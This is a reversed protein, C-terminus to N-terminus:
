RGKSTFAQVNTQNAIFNRVHQSYDTGREAYNRYWDFSTCGPSLLVVDGSVALSAAHAVAVQMSEARRVPCVDKFAAEVEPASEGTAVVARMRAPESAMEALDLGKNRGGAILVVSDFARIAVLAAHPSTAKSDDFWRVGDREGVFEIRHHAHEFHRMAEAVDATSVLGSEMCVAAAALANTVDHPMSRTMESARIIPGHPSTLMGDQAHYDGQELGFTVVRGASNAAHRM